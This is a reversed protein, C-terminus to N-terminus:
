QSHLVIIKHIPDENPNKIMASIETPRVMSAQSVAKTAAATIPIKFATNHGTSERTKRGKMTNVTPTPASDSGGLKEPLDITVQHDGVKAVMRAGEVLRVEVRQERGAM